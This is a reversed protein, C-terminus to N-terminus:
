SYYQKIAKCLSDGFFIVVLISFIIALGPLVITFPATYILELSDRIMAGWEPTPRQAGISIFGLATIDLIAIIFTMVINKVYSIVVNPFTVTKLLILNSAGDLKLILTYEKNLEIKIDNITKHVFQPLVALLTAFMATLLGSEMLISIIIAILLIPISIFIDLIHTFIQAKFGNSFGAFIGIGTGILTAIITVILASGFTYTFGYLIRSFIDRGIDDTGFFYRIEGEPFWSPLMLEKGIFQMDATYPALIPSIISLLFLLSFLILSILYLNNGKFILWLQTFPINNKITKFNNEM